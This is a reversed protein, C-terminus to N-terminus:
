SKRTLLVFSSRQPGKKDRQKTLLLNFIIIKLFTFSLAAGMSQFIHSVGLGAWNRNRLLKLLVTSIFAKIETIPRSLSILLTASFTKM